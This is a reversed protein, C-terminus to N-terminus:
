WPERELSEHGDPDPGPRPALSGEGRSVTGAPSEGAATAIRPSAAGEVLAPASAAADRLTFEVVIARMPTTETWAAHVVDPPWVV